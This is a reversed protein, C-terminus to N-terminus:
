KGVAVAVDPVWQFVPACSRMEAAALAACKVIEAAPPPPSRDCPAQAAAARLLADSCAQPDPPIAEYHGKAVQVTACGSLLVAVVIAPPLAKGAFARAVLRLGAVVLGLTSNTAIRKTAGLWAEWLLLGVLPAVTNVLTSKDM